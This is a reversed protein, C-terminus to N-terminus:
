GQMKIRRRWGIGALGLGLLALTGPEPVQQTVGPGEVSVSLLRPLLPPGNNDGPPFTESSATIPASEVITVDKGLVLGELLEDIAGEETGETVEALETIVRIYDGPASARFDITIESGDVAYSDYANLKENELGNYSHNQYDLDERGLESNSSALGESSHIVAVINKDFAIKASVTSLSTPDYAVFHSAYSATTRESYAYLASQEIANNGVASLGSVDDIILVTTSDSSDTISGSIIGAQLPAALALAVVAIVVTSISNKVETM